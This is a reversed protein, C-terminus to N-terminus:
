GCVLILPMAMKAIPSVKVILVLLVPDGSLVKVTVGVLPREQDLPSVPMAVIDDARMM